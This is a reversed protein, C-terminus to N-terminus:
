ILEHIERLPPLELVAGEGGIVYPIADDLIGLEKIIPSLYHEKVLTIRTGSAYVSLAPM